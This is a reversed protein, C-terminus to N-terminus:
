GSTRLSEAVVDAFRRVTAAGGDAAAPQELRLASLLAGSEQVAFWAVAPECGDCTSVQRVLLTRVGGDDQEGVLETRVTGPGDAEPLSTEPCAAVRERVLDYARAATTPGTHQAVQHRVSARQEGTGASLLVNGDVREDGVAEPAQGSGCPLFPLEVAGDPESTIGWQGPLVGAAESPTVLTALLDQPGPLLEVYRDPDGSVADHLERRAAAAVAPLQSLTPASVASLLPGYQSLAFPVTVEPGLREGFVQQADSEPLGHLVSTPAGAPCRDLVAVLESFAATASAVDPYRVLVHEARGGLGFWRRATGPGRVPLAEVCDRPMPSTADADGQPTRVTWRGGLAEGVDDPDLLADELFPDAPAPAPTAAPISVRDRDGGDATGALLAGLAVVVASGGALAGRTRRTRQAGRRRAAPAGPLVVRGETGLASLRTELDDSLEPM